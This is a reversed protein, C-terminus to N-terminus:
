SLIELRVEALLRADILDWRNGEFRFWHRGTVIARDLARRVDEGPESLRLTMGIPVYSVMSLDDDTGFQGDPGASVMVLRLTEAATFDPRGASFLTANLGRALDDIVEPDNRWGDGRVILRTTVRFPRGWGDTARIDYFERVAAPALDTDAGYFLLPIWGRVRITSYPALVDAWGDDFPPAAVEHLAYRAAASGTEYARHLTVLEASRGGDGLVIWRLTTALDPGPGVREFRYLGLLPLAVLTGYMLTRWAGGALVAALPRRPRDVVAVRADWGCVPCLSGSAPMAAGCAGCTDTDVTM